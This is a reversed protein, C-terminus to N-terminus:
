QPCLYKLNNRYIYFLKRGLCALGLVVGGTISGQVTRLRVHSSMLTHCITETWPPNGYFAFRFHLHCPLQRTLLFSTTALVSAPCTTTAARTQYIKHHLFHFSQDSFYACRILKEQRENSSLPAYSHAHSDSRPWRCSCTKCTCRLFTSPM